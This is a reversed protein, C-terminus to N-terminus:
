LSYRSVIGALEFPVYAVIAYVSTVFLTKGKVTPVSFPVSEDGIWNRHGGSVETHLAFEM